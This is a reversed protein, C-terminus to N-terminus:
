TALWVTFDSGKGPHSRAEIMGGHAEVINRCQYLGIGFGAKRTTEFPKFLRNRMFGEDMGCGKDSVRFFPRELRGVEILVPSQADSAQLANLVLNIAVKEIEAPDVCVPVREGAVTLRGNALNRTGEVIVELLDCEQLALTPKEQLDKLRQMLRNMKGVIDDLGGLLDTQFAPDAIYDRANHAMMGLSSVLNKLDHLVFASVRGVTALQRANFLQEALHLRLIAGAAHSAFMKMLDFDEYTFDEGRCIPAGLAIFGELCEDSLLPVIFSVRYRDLFDRHAARVSPQEDHSAFVWGQQALFRALPDTECFIETPVQWEHAAVPRFVTGERLWLAGGQLAFTEGYFAIVGQQLDDATRALQLRRTFALWQQRYDYKHKYFSKALMVRLRRKATESLLVAMVAVGGVLGLALLISQPFTDGLYRMGEGLLGLGILYISVALIVVSRFAVNPAVAIKGPSGRRLRSWFILGAALILAVSRAPLLNLDLTRYLLGQSYYIIYLALLAGAGIMEFKVRWREQRSLATLTREFQRLIYTFFTILGISYFYGGSGLFLIKEEAFDPSYFFRELPLFFGALLFIASLCLLFASLPSWSRLGTKRAFTLAFLLWAPVIVGQALLSRSLWAEWAEPHRLAMFDCFELAASALLALALSFAALGQRRFAGLTALALLLGLSIAVISLPAQLTM